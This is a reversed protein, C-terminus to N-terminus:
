AILERKGYPTIAFSSLCLTSHFLVLVLVFRNCWCVTPVVIFLAFVVAIFLAFVVAIFLAFVVAIFLAFVVASLVTASAM